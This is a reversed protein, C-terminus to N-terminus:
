LFRGLRMWFGAMKFSEWTMSIRVGMDTSESGLVVDDFSGEGGCALGTAGSVLSSVEGLDSDDVTTKGVGPGGVFMRSSDAFVLDIEWVVCDTVSAWGSMKIM